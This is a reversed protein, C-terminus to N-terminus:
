IKPDFDSADRLRRGDSRRQWMNLLEVGLSFAMAVYIFTKPMEYGNGEAVLTMGIMILFGLALMVVTPNKGIFKALPESALIMVGVAILVALIMIELDQALGVATIISDISFVIDIVVIQAIVAAFRAIPKAGKEQKPKYAVRERIEVTSKWILFLGGVILVFDRVSYPHEFATFVPETLKVLWAALSLLGVRFFVALLLGLRRATKQRAAPLKNSLIAIFVLNDVSLVIELAMLVFLTAWTEPQMFLDLM